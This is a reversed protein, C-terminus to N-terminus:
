VVGAPSLMVSSLKEVIGGTTSAAEECESLGRTPEEWDLLPKMCSGDDELYEQNPLLGAPKAQRM